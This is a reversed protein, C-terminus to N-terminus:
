NVNWSESLLEGFEGSEEEINYRKEMVVLNNTDFLVVGNFPAGLAEYYINQTSVPLGHISSTHCEKCKGSQFKYEEILVARDDQDRLLCKVVHEDEYLPEKQWAAQNLTKLTRFDFLHSDYVVRDFKSSEYREISIWKRYPDSLIRFTTGSLIETKDNGYPIGDKWFYNKYHDKM